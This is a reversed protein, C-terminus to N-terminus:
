KKKKDKKLGSNKVPRILKIGKEKEVAQIEKVRAETFEVITGSLYKKKTKIDTFNRMIVCEM